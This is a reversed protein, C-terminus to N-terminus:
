QDDSDDLDDLMRTVRFGTNNNGVVYGRAVLIKINRSVNQKKICADEAIQKQLCDPHDRIYEYVVYQGSNKKLQAEYQSSDFQFLCGERHLNIAMNHTFKGTAHLTFQNPQDSREMVFVSDCCGMISSDSYVVKDSLMSSILKQAM